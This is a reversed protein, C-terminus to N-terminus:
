FIVAGMNSEKSEELFYKILKKYHFFFFLLGGVSFVIILFFFYIMFVNAMKHSFNFSFLNKCERFFYFALQEINGEYIIFLLIGYFSYKRILKSIRYNFLARFIWFFLFYIGLASPFEYFFFELNNAFFGMGNPNKVM